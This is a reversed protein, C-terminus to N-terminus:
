QKNKKVGKALEMKSSKIFIPLSNWFTAEDVHTFQHNLTKNEGNWLLENGGLTTIPKQDELKLTGDATISYDEEVHRSASFVWGLDEAEKILSLKHENLKM